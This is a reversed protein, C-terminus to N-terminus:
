QLVFRLNYRYRCREAILAPYIIEAQGEDRPMDSRQPSGVNRTVISAQLATRAVEAIGRIAVSNIRRLPRRFPGHPSM